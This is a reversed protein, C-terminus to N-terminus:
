ASRREDSERPVPSQIDQLDVDIVRHERAKELKHATRPAPIFRAFASARVKPANALVVAIWPMAIAVGMAIWRAVGSFILVAAIFFVVRSLMAFIYRRERSRIENNRSMGIDSITM